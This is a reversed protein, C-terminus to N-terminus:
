SSMCKVQVQPKAALKLFSLLLFFRMLVSSTIVFSSRDCGEKRQSALALPLTACDHDLRRDSRREDISRDAVPSVENQSRDIISRHFRRSRAKIRM